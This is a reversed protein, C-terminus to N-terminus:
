QKLIRLKAFKLILTKTGSNAFVVIAKRDGKPGEITEVKGRGFRDHFVEMGEKISNAQDHSVGSRVTSKEVRKLKKNNTQIDVQKRSQLKSKPKTKSVFSKFDKNKTAQMSRVIPSQDYSLLQDMTNDEVYKSDLESLFRSPESYQLNGWKYRSGAYSLFVQKEGRTLAVYFLRREEEIDARSTLSMMSPFLNEEMGVVFVYPFELGKSAHITMLTVVDQNEENNKDADTHLAIDEMFLELTRMEVADAEDNEEETFEKISSLLEEVNEFRMIGDQDERAAYLTSYIGTKKAIDNALDYANKKKLDLAFTRIMNVFDYIKNATGKALINSQMINTMLDWLSMQLRNAEIRLKDLSTSGIGRKPYNIVRMMAEEDNHNIVLRYYSLLDKIEKRSYFSLGGYIRYAINMKRLADEMSRSQSNTRYLIAFDTNNAHQTNKISFINRAVLSGEETDSLTSNLSIKEGIDNSTWITKEIQKKNNSIISNAINVINQTSRYNQELKFTKLNTYDKNMNLINQINAGRFAYISQADDGVVTINESQAALRKVILYQSHNTDQYEDVLFYKFRRQYKILVDANDRLLVNTNFLLDDFDMASARKLREQYITYIDGIKGKGSEKDTSLLSANNNYDRPSILNNKASSIRGLVLNPKYTKDDLQEEKIIKRIISKSDDSDYITFNSPYGIKDAEIRLIKSFVSHFTGMWVSRAQTGIIEEIRAKMEKAAKNTFTLSMINFPDVGKEILHAIKYTLVRTKGSGAGAIIMSPGETYAAAEQQVKNLGDLLAM